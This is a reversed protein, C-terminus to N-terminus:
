PKSIRCAFLIALRVQEPGRVAVRHHRYWDGATLRAPAFTRWWALAAPARSAGPERTDKAGVDPSLGHLYLAVCSLRRWARGIRAMLTMVGPVPAVCPTRTPQIALFGDSGHIPANSVRLAELAAVTSCQRRRQIPLAVTASPSTNVVKTDSDDRESIPLRCPKPPTPGPKNPFTAWWRHRRPV